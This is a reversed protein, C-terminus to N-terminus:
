NGNLEFVFAEGKQPIRQNGDCIGNAPFPRLFCLPRQYLNARSRFGRIFGVAPPKQCVDPVSELRLTEVSKRRRLKDSRQSLDFCGSPRITERFVM